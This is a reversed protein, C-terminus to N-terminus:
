PEDGPNRMGVWPPKRRQDAQRAAQRAVKQPDTRAQPALRLRTALMAQIKVAMQWGEINKGPGSRAVLTAQIFSNLLPVDSEVFHRPDCSGVLDAFLEREPKSLYSPPTLRKPDGTVNLAVM